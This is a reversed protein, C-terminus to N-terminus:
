TDIVKGLTFNVQKTKTVQQYGVLQAFRPVETPWSVELENRYSGSQRALPDMKARGPTFRFAGRGFADPGYTAFWSILQWQQDRTFATLVIEFYLRVKLVAPDVPLVNGHSDYSVGNTLGFSEESVDSEWDTLSATIYGLKSADKNRYEDKDEYGLDVNDAAAQASFTNGTSKCKKAYWDHVPNLTQSSVQLDTVSM